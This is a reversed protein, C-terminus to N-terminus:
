TLQSGVSASRCIHSTCAWIVWAATNVMLESVVSGISRKTRISTVAIGSAAEVEIIQGFKEQNVWEVIRQAGPFFPFESSCRVIVDPNEVIAKMISQNAEADIGFPKEGLLHKGAKIIDIYLQEHLNHPVACYVADVEPDAILERYDSTTKKVSPVNNEFWETAPLHADCVHTIEPIYDVNSLHCWRASASAFEKGM